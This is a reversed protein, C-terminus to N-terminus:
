KSKEQRQACFFAPCFTKWGANAAMKQRRDNDKNLRWVAERRIRPLLTLHLKATLINLSKKKRFRVIRPNAYETRNNYGLSVHSEAYVEDKDLDYHLDVYFGNGLDTDPMENIAEELGKYHRDRMITEEKQKEEYKPWKIVNGPTTIQVM